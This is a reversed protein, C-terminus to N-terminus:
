DARKGDPGRVVSNSGYYHPDSQLKRHAEEAAERTRHRSVIEGSEDDGYPAGVYCVTWYTSKTKM